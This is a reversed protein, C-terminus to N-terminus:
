EKIGIFVLHHGVGEDERLDTGYGGVYFTKFPKFLESLDERSKFNIFTSECLREDLVVKSMEGVCGEVRKFYYSDKSMMSVFFVGGPKLLEYLQEVVKKIDADNLYYLVQNSFILDFRTSGFLEKLNTPTPSICFFNEAFEPLLKKCNKIATDVADCGFLVFGNDAFYKSHVGFGCGYDLFNGGIIGFQSELVKKHFRVIHGEPHQLGYGKDFKKKFESVNKEYVKEFSM